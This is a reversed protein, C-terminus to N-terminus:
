RPLPYDYVITNETENIRINSLETKRYIESTLTPLSQLKIDNEDAVPDKKSKRGTHKGKKVQKEAVKKEPISVQIIETPINVGDVVVYKRFYQKGVIEMKPNYMIVSSLKGDQKALEIKGILKQLQGEVTYTSIILSDEKRIPGPIVLGSELGFNELKGTLILHFLSTEAIPNIKQRAALTDALFKYMTSDRFVWIEPGPFKIKYVIKQINLDYWIRGM